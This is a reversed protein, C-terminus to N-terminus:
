TIFPIYLVRRSSASCSASTTLSFFSSSTLSFNKFLFDSSSFSTCCRLELIWCTSFLSFCLSSPRLWRWSSILRLFFSSSSELSFSSLWCFAKTLRSISSSRICLCSCSLNSSSLPSLASSALDRRTSDNFSSARVFAWCYILSMMSSALNVALLSAFLITMWVIWRTAVSVAISFLTVTNWISLSSTLPRIMPRSPRLILAKSAAVPTSITTSSVGSAMTILAKSGTRRSTHRNARCWSMESPRIWGARISSTTAFTFFCTSSSTM